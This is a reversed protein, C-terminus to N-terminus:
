YIFFVLVFLGLSAWRLGTVTRMSPNSLFTLLHVQDRHGRLRYLGTEGVVDWLIIDNDKSGSALLSGINNFRLITVAGRHGNLTTECTGKDSDWIRISGDAYGSAIQM